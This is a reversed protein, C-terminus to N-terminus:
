LDKPDVQPDAARNPKPQDVAQFEATAKCAACRVAWPETTGRDYTGLVIAPDCAARYNSRSGILVPSGAPASRIRGDPDKVLLHIRLTKAPRPGAAKPGAASMPEMSAEDNM